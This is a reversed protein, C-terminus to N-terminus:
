QGNTQPPFATILKVKTGWGEQFSRLSRSTFQAGRDSIISLSIGHRCVIEDIFIRAYDEASHTSKVLIFHGSKTLRDVIVWISDYHKKTRSLGVVFYMNIDELKSTLVQIEQFLGGSKQHEAKVQQCNPCKGVLEAIDKKLGEWSFVERLDHYM